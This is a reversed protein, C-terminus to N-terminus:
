NKSLEPLMRDFRTGSVVKLSRERAAELRQPQPDSMKKGGRDSEFPERSEFWWALSLSAAITGM